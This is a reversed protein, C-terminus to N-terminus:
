WLYSKNIIRNKSTAASEPFLINIANAIAKKLLAVYGVFATEGDNFKYGSLLYRISVGYEKMARENLNSRASSDELELIDVVMQLGIVEDFVSVKASIRGSYDTGSVDTKVGNGDTQYYARDNTDFIANLVKLVAQQKYKYIEANFCENDMDPTPLVDYINQVTVLKHFSDFFRGSDSKLNEDTLTVGTSEIPSSWGIRDVLSQIAEPSYM